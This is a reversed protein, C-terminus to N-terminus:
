IHFIVTKTFSYIYVNIQIHKKNATNLILIFVSGTFALFCFQFFFSWWSVLSRATPLSYRAQRKLVSPESHDLLLSMGTDMEGKGEEGEEVVFHRRVLWHTINWPKQNKLKFNGNTTPPFEYGYSFINVLYVRSHLTWWKWILCCVAPIIIDHFFFERCRINTSNSIHSFSCSRAVSALLRESNFAKKTETLFHLFFPHEDTM